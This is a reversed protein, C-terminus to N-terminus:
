WNNKQIMFYKKLLINTEIIENEIPQQIGHALYMEHSRDRTFLLPLITKKKFKSFPSRSMLHLYYNLHLWLLPENHFNQPSLELKFKIM